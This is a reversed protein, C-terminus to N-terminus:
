IWIDLPARDGTVRRLSAHGIAVGVSTLVLNKLSSDKWATFVVGLEPVLDLLKQTVQSEEMMFSKQLTRLGNLVGAPLAYREAMRDLVTEDVANVQLRSEDNLCRGIIESLYPTSYGGLAADVDNQTFGRSFLGPYNMCLLSEISNSGISINCCGCYELHQYASNRSPLSGLFPTATQALWTKLSQHSVISRNKTYRFIFVLALAATQDPTLKPAVVIAENLVISVLSGTREATRQVLIDVLVDQLEPNGSRAFAKQAEFFTAQFDPDEAVGVGAPNRRELEVLFESTLEQARAAAVDAAVGRLVVFNAAFLDDVLDKVDRYTMGTQVNVNDAQVNVSGSGGTQVQKNM